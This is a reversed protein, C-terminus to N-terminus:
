FGFISRGVQLISLGSLATNLKSQSVKGQPVYVVDGNSLPEDITFKGKAIQNVPVIRKNVTGNATRHVIAVEQLRAGGITGGALLLADGITLTGNEPIPYYGPRAVAEMILVKNPNRPVNILDGEHLEVPIRVGEVKANQMTNIKFAPSVDATMSTGNRRVISVQKLAAALNPGGARLLLEVLGDGEKMQYEGPKEVEGSVFVASAAQPNAIVLDGDQLRVNQGLDRLGILSVPDINLVVQHGNSNRLINLRTEDPKASLGGATFIADLLTAEKKLNVEGPRLFSGAIKVKPGELPSVLLIDGTQLALDSAPNYTAKEINVPIEKAGRRISVVVQDPPVTLGGATLLARLVGTKGELIYSGPGKVLNQFSVVSVATRIAKVNIQDGNILELNGREDPNNFADVASLTIKRNSRVLTVESTEPTQLLGGAGTLANLFRAQRRLLVPGPVKVDGLVTVRRGQFLKLSITDGKKLTLNAASGPSALIKMLDLKQSAGKAHSFTAVIDELPATLGGAADIADGVRWGNILNLPGPNTVAGILNVQRPKAIVLTVSVQPKRLQGSYAATIIQQAQAMSKGAVLVNGVVPLTVKGAENISLGPSNMEPHNAVNVALIDGPELPFDFSTQAASHAQARQAPPVSLQSGSHASKSQAAQSQAAGPLAALAAM